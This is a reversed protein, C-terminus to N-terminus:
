SSISVNSISVAVSSTPPWVSVNTSIKLARTAPSEVILITNLNPVTRGPSSRRPHHHQPFQMGAVIQRTRLSSRREQCLHRSPQIGLCRALRKIQSEKSSRPSPHLITAIRPSDVKVRRRRLNGPATNPRSSFPRVSQMFKKCIPRIEQSLTASFMMVQKHHPTARFVDQIDRRMDLMLETLKLRIMGVAELMKDCEDLVFNKVSGVRLYKDRVLGNLRGPTAVIIHPCTDKSRIM